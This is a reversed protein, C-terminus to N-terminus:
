LINFVPIADRIRVGVAPQVLFSSSSNGDDHNKFLPSDAM